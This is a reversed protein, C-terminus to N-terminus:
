GSTCNSGPFLSCRGNNCYRLLGRCTRVIGVNNPLCRVARRCSACRSGGQSTYNCTTTTPFLLWFTREQQGEEEEASRVERESDSGVDEQGFLQSQQELSNQEAFILNVAVLATLFAFVYVNAVAM